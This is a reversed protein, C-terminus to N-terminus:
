KEPLPMVLSQLDTTVTITTNNRSFAFVGDPMPCFEIFPYESDSVECVARAVPRGWYFWGERYESVTLIIKTKKKEDWVANDVSCQLNLPLLIVESQKQVEDLQPITIESKLKGVQLSVTIKGQLNPTAFFAKPIRIQLITLDFSHEQRLGGFWTLWNEVNEGSLSNIRLTTRKETELVYQDALEKVKKLDATTRVQSAARYFKEYDYREWDAAIKTREDELNKFQPDNKHFAKLQQDIRKVKEFFATAPLFALGKRENEIIQEREARIGEIVETRDPYDAPTITEIFHDYFRKTEAFDASHEIETRLNKLETEFRLIRRRGTALESLM